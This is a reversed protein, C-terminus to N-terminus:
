TIESQQSQAPQAQGSHDLHFPQITHFTKSPVFGLMPPRQYTISCTVLTAQHGEPYVQVLRRANPGHGRRERVEPPIPESYSQDSDPSYTLNDPVPIRIQLIQGPIMGGIERYSQEILGGADTIRIAVNTARIEGLNQVNVTM